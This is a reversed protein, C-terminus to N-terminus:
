GSSQAAPRSERLAILDSECAFDDVLLGSLGDWKRLNLDDSCVEARLRVLLADVEHPTQGRTPVRHSHDREAILGALM